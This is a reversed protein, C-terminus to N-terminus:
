QPANNYLEFMGKGTVPLPIGAVKGTASATWRAYALNSSDIVVDQAALNFQWSLAGSQYTITVSADTTVAGFGALGAHWISGGTSITMLTSSKDTSCFNAIKLGNFSLYGSTDWTSADSNSSLNAGIPIYAFYVFTYGGVVGRGWYWTAVILQTAQNGFNSDHYGTGSITFTQGAITITASATASPLANAWGLGPGVLDPNAAGPTLNPTTGSNCPYHSPATQQLNLSGSIATYGNFMGNWNAVYKAFGTIGSSSWSGVGPWQGKMGEILPSPSNTVTGVTTSLGFYSGWATGNPYTGSLQVYYPSQVIPGFGYGSFYVVQLSSKDTDSVIDFYWWQWPNTYSTASTALPVHPGDLPTYSPLSLGLRATLSLIVLSLLVRLM